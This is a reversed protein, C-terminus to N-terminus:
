NINKGETKVRHHALNSDKPVFIVLRHKVNVINSSLNNWKVIDTKSVNYRSAIQTMTEGIRVKHLVKKHDNMEPFAYEPNDKELDSIKLTIGTIQTTNFMLYIEEALYEGSQIEEKKNEDGNISKGWDKVSNFATTATNSIKHWIKKDKKTAEKGSDSYRTIVIPDPKIEDMDPITNIEVQHDASVSFDNWNDTEQVPVTNEALFTEAPMEANDHKGIISRGWGKVSAYATNTAGSLRNWINGKPKIELNQINSEALSILKEDIVRKRYSKSNYKDDEIQLVYDEMIDVVAKNNVAIQQVEPEALPPQEILIFETKQIKLKSGAIINNSTLNNWIKLDEISVDNERSIRYLTEGPYVEHYSVITQAQFLQPQDEFTIESETHNGFVVEDAYGNVVFL